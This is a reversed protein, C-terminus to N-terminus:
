STLMMLRTILSRQTVAVLEAKDEREGETKDEGLLMQMRRRQTANVDEKDGEEQVQEVKEVEEAVQEAEGEEVEEAVVEAEGEEAAYGEQQASFACSIIRTEAQLSIDNSVLM